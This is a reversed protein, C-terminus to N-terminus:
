TSDCKAAPTHFETHESVTRPPEGLIVTSLIFDYEAFYKVFAAIGNLPRTFFHSIM